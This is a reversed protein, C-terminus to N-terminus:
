QVTYTFLLISGDDLTFIRREGGPFWERVLSIEAEREPLTAFVTPGKLTPRPSERTWPEEVDTAQVGRAIFPLSSFGRYVMRPTGGFYVEYDPGLTRLYYGLETAVLSNRDGYFYTTSPALLYYDLNWIVLGVVIAAAVACAPV